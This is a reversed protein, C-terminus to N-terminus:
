PLAPLGNAVRLASAYAVLPAVDTGDLTNVFVVNDGFALLVSDATKIASGDTTLPTSKGGALDKLSAVNKFDSRMALSQVLFQYGTSNTLVAVAYGVVFPKAAGLADVVTQRLDREVGAPPQEYTYGSLVRLSSAAAANGVDTFQSGVVVWIRARARVECRLGVGKSTVASAGVKTCRAGTRAITTKASVAPATLVLSATVLLMASLVLLAGQAFVLASSGVPRGSGRTRSATPVQMIPTGERESFGTTDRLNRM